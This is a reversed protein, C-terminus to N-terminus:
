GIYRAKVLSKHKNDIMIDVNNNILENVKLQYLKDKELKVGDLKIYRYFSIDLNYKTTDKSVMALNIGLEHIKNVIDKHNYLDKEKVEFIIKDPSVKKSNMYGLIVNFLKVDLAEKGIPLIYHDKNEIDVIAKSVREVLTLYTNDIKSYLTIEDERIALHEEDFYNLSVYSLNDKSENNDIVSKFSLPINNAKYSEEVIEMYYRHNDIPLPEEDIRYLRGKKSVQGFMTRCLSDLSFLTNVELPYSLLIMKPQLSIDKNLTKFKELFAKSVERAVEISQAVSADELVYVFEDEEKRYLHDSLGYKGLTEIIEKVVDNVPTKNKSALASLADIKICLLYGKADGDNILGLLKNELDKKSNIYPKPESLLYVCHDEGVELTKRRYENSGLLTNTDINKLPCDRCMEDRGYLAEYCISGQLKNNYRDELKKSAHVINMEDDVEYSLSNTMEELRNFRNEAEYVLHKSLDFVLLGKLVDIFRFIQNRKREDLVLDETNALVLHIEQGQYNFLYVDHMYELDDENILHIQILGEFTVVRYYNDGYLIGLHSFGLYPYIEKLFDNLITDSMIDIHRYKNLVYDFSDEKIEQHIIVLKEVNSSYDDNIIDIMENLLYEDHYCLIIQEDKDKLLERLFSEIVDKDNNNIIFDYGGEDDYIYNNNFKERIALFSDENRIKLLAFNDLHGSRILKAIEGYFNNGMYVENPTLLSSTINIENVLKAIEQLNNEESEIQILPEDSKKDLINLADIIKKEDHDMVKLHKRQEHLHVFLFALAVLVLILSLIYFVVKYDVKLVIALAGLPLSLVLCILAVILYKSIAKNKM